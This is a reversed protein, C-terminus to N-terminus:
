NMIRCFEVRRNNAKGEPTTNPAIPMTEGFGKVQLRGAEVGLKVLADKVAAAREESLKQNAKDDGDSDTHGEVSLKLTADQKLMGVIVNLVGM